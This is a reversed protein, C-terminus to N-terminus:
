LKMAKALKKVDIEREKSLRDYLNSIFDEYIQRPADTEIMVMLCGVQEKVFKEKTTM